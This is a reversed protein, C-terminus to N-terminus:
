WEKIINKELNNKRTLLHLPKEFSALSVNLSIKVKKVNMEYLLELLKTMPITNNRLKVALSNKETDPDSQSFLHNLPKLTSM